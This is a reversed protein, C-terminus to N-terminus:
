ASSPLTPLVLNGLLVDPVPDYLMVRDAVGSLRTLVARPVADPDACVAFTEVMEDTVIRLMATRDGGALLAHLRPPADDWGHVEFVGRYTRTAGYFAIQARIAERAAAVETDDRGTVVWVPVLVQVDERSRGSASLGAELAPTVVDALYRRSHLPHAFLGQAIEGVLSVMRPNVGALFVPIDPHAIPGPNFYDTLLTHRYYPGEHRLPAGTQFSRWIAHLAGVYDRMRDLPREAPVGFRRHLHAKVQAGLGLVFRGESARALEWAAQALVFPSRAFAVSVGTGVRLESTAALLAAAVVTPDSTTESVWGIGDCSGDAAQAAALGERIRSPLTIDVHM